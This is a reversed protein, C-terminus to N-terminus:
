PLGEGVAVRYRSNQRAPFLADCYLPNRFGLGGNSYSNSDISRASEDPWFWPTGSHRTRIWLSPSSGPSSRVSAVVGSSRITMTHSSVARAQISVPKASGPYLRCSVGMRATRGAHSVVPCIDEKRQEIGRRTEQHDACVCHRNVAHWSGSLVQVNRLRVKAKVAM